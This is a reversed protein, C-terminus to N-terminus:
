TGGNNDAQSAPSPAYSAPLGLLYNTRPMPQPMHQVNRHAEDFEAQAHVLMAARLLIEPPLAELEDISTPVSSVGLITLVEIQAKMRSGTVFYQQLLALVARSTITTSSIIFEKAETHRLALIDRRARNSQKTLRIKKKMFTKKDLCVEVPRKEWDVAYGRCTCEPGCDMRKLEQASYSNLKEHSDHSFKPFQPAENVKGNRGPKTKRGAATGAPGYQAAAKRAQEMEHERAASDLEQFHEPRLCYFMPDNRYDTGADIAAKYPCATCIAKYDFLPRTGYDNIMVVLNARKLHDAFPLGKELKKTPMPHDIVLRAIESAVAPFRKFRAIAKGHATSLDGRGIAAGVDEPLELLRLYNSVVSPNVQFRHAIEENSLGLERLAAYGQAIEIPNLDRRHVNEVLALTVHRAQNEVLRIKASITERGLLQFARYRREGMILEFKLGDAVKSNGARLENMFARQLEPDKMIPNEPDVGVVIASLQGYEKISAALEAIAEEDFESRPNRVVIIDAMRIQMEPSMLEEPNPLNGAAPTFITNAKKNKM